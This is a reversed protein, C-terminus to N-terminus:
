GKLELELRKGRPGLEQHLDESCSMNAKHGGEGEQLNRAGWISSSPSSFSILKSEKGSVCQQQGQVAGNDEFRSPNTNPCKTTTNEQFWLMALM